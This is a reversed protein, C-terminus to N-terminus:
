CSGGPSILKQKRRWYVTVLCFLVLLFLAAPSSVRMLMLAAGVFPLLAVRVLPKLEPHANLYRAAAPSHQYYWRVFASGFFNTRLWRDRFSRLVLVEPEAYSGFAATAIFCGENPLNPYAVITEPYAAKENSLASEHVAGIPVPLETSLASEKDPSAGYFVKVAIYYTAQAYSSVAIKYTQGDVLSSLAYTTTNGVDLTNESTSAIGYHVKYGTDGPSSSWSLKLQGASSPNADNLVPAPPTVASPTLNTLTYSSAIGVTIPSPSSGGSADTGTYDGKANGYYVKYGGGTGTSATILYNENPEWSITISTDTSSSKSLGSVPFPTPDMNPGGYAGIDSRNNVDIPTDFITVDGANLAPSNQKLHFDRNAPKVFLPDTIVNTTPTPGAPGADTNAFFCNYTTNNAISFQNTALTNSSFINNKIIIDADRSVGTGNQYFTNNVVTTSASGQEQIAVIGSGLGLQFVNNSITISANAQILIGISANIFTFNRVIANTVGYATIITGSGGGTLFTRATEKGRLPIGSKLTLYEPYEGPEVLVSYSNGNNQATLAAAADLATQITAYQTPVVLTIEAASVAGPNFAMLSFASFFFLRLLMYARM